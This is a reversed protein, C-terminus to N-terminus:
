VIAQGAATDWEMTPGLRPYLDARGEAVLCFKLASGAAVEEGVVYRSLFKELEPSPHSRSKVVTLAAGPQSARVSLPETAADPGSTRWAGQGKSAFYIAGTVPVGIVGLVPYGKEILAVNVTFEGNRKVFEKTGDLPDVLWFREWAVRKLYPVQEKTEESIVPIDAFCEMLGPALVLHSARDARTLPSGDEKTEVNFATGYVQMIVGCAERVLNVVTKTMPTIDVM